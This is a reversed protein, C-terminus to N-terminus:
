LYRPGFCLGLMTRCKIKLNTNERQQQKKREGWPKVQKTNWHLRNKCQKKGGPEKLWEM